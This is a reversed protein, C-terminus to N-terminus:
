PQRRSIEVLQIYARLLRVAAAHGPDQDDDVADLVDQDLKSRAEDEPTGNASTDSNTDDPQEQDTETTDPVQGALKAAVLGHLKQDATPGPGGKIPATERGALKDNIYTGLKSM